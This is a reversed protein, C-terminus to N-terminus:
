RRGEGLAADLRADAAARTAEIETVIAVLREAPESLGGPHGTLGELTSLGAQVVGSINCDAGFRRHAWDLQPQPIWVTLRPM